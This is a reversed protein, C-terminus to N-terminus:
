PRHQRLPEDEVGRLLGYREKLLVPRCFLFDQREAGGDHFGDLLM